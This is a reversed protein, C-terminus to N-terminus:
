PHPVYWMAVEFWPSFGDALVFRCACVVLVVAATAVFLRQSISLSSLWAWFTLLVLYCASFAECMVRLYSSGTRQALVCLVAFVLANVVLFYCARRFRLRNEGDLAMDSAEHASETSQVFVSVEPEDFRNTTDNRQWVILAGPCRSSCGDGGRVFRFFTWCGWQAVSAAPHSNSPTRWWAVATVARASPFLADMAAAFL